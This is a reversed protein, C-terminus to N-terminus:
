LYHDYLDPLIVALEHVLEFVTKNGIDNAPLGGWVDNLRGKVDATLASHEPAITLVQGLTVIAM